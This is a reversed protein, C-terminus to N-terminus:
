LQSKLLTFKAYKLRAQPSALETIWEDADVIQAVSPLDVARYLLVKNTTANLWLTKVSLCGWDPYCVTDPSTNWSSPSLRKTTVQAMFDM